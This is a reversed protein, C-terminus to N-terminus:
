TDIAGLRLSTRRDTVGRRDRLVDNLWRIADKVEYCLIRGNRDSDVHSLFFPDCGLTDVPAGTAVWHAENLELIRDLDQATEIKLHYSRGYRVFMMSDRDSM